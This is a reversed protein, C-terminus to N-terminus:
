RFLAEAEQRLVHAELWNHRHLGTYPTDLPMRGGQQDLWGAAKDLWRRAEDAKGLRRHAIALWLWSLVARGPRGDVVLSRELLPIAQQFRGARVQLAAQETLSWFATSDRRLEEQALRSPLKPADASGPALTCARAALYPRTQQAQCHVLM